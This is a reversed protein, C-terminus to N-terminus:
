CVCVYKLRKATQNGEYAIIGITSVKNVLILSWGTVMFLINGLKSLAIRSSIMILM